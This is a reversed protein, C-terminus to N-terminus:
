LGHLPGCRLTYGPGMRGRERTASRTSPGIKAAHAPGPSVPSGVCCVWSRRVWGSVGSVSGFLAAALAVWSEDSGTVTSPLMKPGPSTSRYENWAGAPVRTYAAVMVAPEGPPESEFISRSSAPPTVTTSVSSSLPVSALWDELM